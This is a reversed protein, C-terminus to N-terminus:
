RTAGRHDDAVYLSPASGLAVMPEGGLKVMERSVSEEAGEVRGFVPPTQFVVTDLPEADNV